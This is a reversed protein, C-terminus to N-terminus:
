RSPRRTATVDLVWQRQYVAFREGLGVSDTVDEAFASEASDVGSKADAVSHGDGDLVDVLIGDGSPTVHTEM